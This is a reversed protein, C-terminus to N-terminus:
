DQNSFQYAKEENKHLQLEDSQADVGAKFARLMMNEAELEEIRLAAYLVVQNNVSASRLTDVINENMESDTQM